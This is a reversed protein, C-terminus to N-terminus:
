AVPGSPGGDFRGAARREAVLSVLATFPKPADLAVLEVGAPVAPTRPADPASADAGGLTVVLRLAPFALEELTAVAGAPLVLVQAPGTRVAGPVVTDALTTALSGRLSVHPLLEAYGSLTLGEAALAQRLRLMPLAVVVTPGGAPAAVITAPGAPGDATIGDGLEEAAISWFTEPDALAPDVVRVAALLAGEIVRLEHEGAGASRALADAYAAGLEALAAPSPAIPQAEGDPLEICLVRGSERDVRIESLGADRAIRAQREGDFPPQLWEGPYPVARVSATLSAVIEADTLVM